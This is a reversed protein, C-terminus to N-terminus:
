AAGVTFGLSKLGYSLCKPEWMLSTLELKLRPLGESWQPDSVSGQESTVKELFSRCIFGSNGCNTEEAINRRLVEQTGPVM